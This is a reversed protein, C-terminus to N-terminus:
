EEETEEEGSDEDESGDYAVSLETKSNESVNDVIDDLRDANYVIEGLSESVAIITIGLNREISDLYSPLDTAGNTALFETCIVDLCHGPKDSEIGMDKVKDFANNVNDFQDIFLSFTMRKLNDSSGSGEEGEGEAGERGEQLLEKIERCSLGETKQKWEAANEATVVGKLLEAKAWGLSRLWDQINQPLTLFYKHLGSLIQATRLSFNLEKDIYERFGAYGWSRYLNEEYIKHLIEALEWYSKEAKDKITKAQERVEIHEGTDVLEANGEEENEVVSLNVKEETM